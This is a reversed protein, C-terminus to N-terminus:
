PASEGPEDGKAFRELKRRLGRPLTSREEPNTWFETLTRLLDASYGYRNASALLKLRRDLPIARAQRILDDREESSVDRAIATAYVFPTPGLDANPDGLQALAAIVFKAKDRDAKQLAFGLFILGDYVSAKESNKLLTTIDHILGCGVKTKAFGALYSYLIYLTRQSKTVAKSLAIQLLARHVYDEIYEEPEIKDKLCRVLTNLKTIQALSLKAPIFPRTILHDLFATVPRKGLDDLLGATLTIVEQWRDQALFRDIQQFPDGRSVIERAVYYEQFTLHTFAYQNLGVEKLLGSREEIQSLLTSPQQLGPLDGLEAIKATLEEKTVLRGKRNKHVWLALPGLIRNAERVDQFVPPVDRMLDWTTLLAEVCKAYLGARREPLNRYAKYVRALITILLPNEALARVRPNGIADLLNQKEKDTDTAKCWLEVFTQIDQDSLPEVAFNAFGDRLPAKPYGVKRSTVIFRCAPHRHAFEQVRATVQLREESSAVEDLGDFLFIALGKEYMHRVVEVYTGLNHARLLTPLFAQISQGPSTKLFAAYERLPVQVPLYTKDLGVKGPVPTPISLHYGIYRLLTSKGSGPDGLLVVKKKQKLVEWINAAEQGHRFFEERLRNVRDRSQRSIVKYPAVSLSVFLQDIQVRLYGGLVPIGKFDIWKFEECVTERYRREGEPIAVSTPSTLPEPPTVARNKVTEELDHFFDVATDSLLDINDEDCQKVFLRDKEAGPIVAYSKPMAQGLLSRCFDLERLFDPDGLSYGVFILGQTLLLSKLESEIGPTLPVRTYDRQTIVIRDPTSIDGHLKYIITRDPISTNPLHLDRIVVIPHRVQEKVADELLSDFNTTLIRRFLRAASKHGENPALGDKQFIKLLFENLRQRGFAVQYRQAALELALPSEPSPRLADFKSKFLENQMQFALDRGTPLGSGLSIGAGAFLLLRGEVFSEILAPSIEQLLM